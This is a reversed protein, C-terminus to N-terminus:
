KTVGTEAGVVRRLDDEDEDEDEDEDGGRRVDVLCDCPRASLIFNSVNRSMLRCCFPLWACERTSKLLRAIVVLGSCM